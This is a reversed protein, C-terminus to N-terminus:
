VITGDGPERYVTACPIEAVRREHVFILRGPVDGRGETIAMPPAREDDRRV